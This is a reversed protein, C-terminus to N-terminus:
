RQRVRERLDPGDCGKDPEHSDRDERQEHEGLGALDLTQAVPRAARGLARGIVLLANRGSRRHADLLLLLDGV